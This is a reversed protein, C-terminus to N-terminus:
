SAFPSPQCIPLYPTKTCTTSDLNYQSSIPILYWPGNLLPTPNPNPHNDIVFLVSANIIPVICFLLFFIM